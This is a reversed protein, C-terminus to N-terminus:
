RAPDHERFLRRLAKLVRRLRDPPESGAEVRVTRGRYTVRQRAGGALPPGVPEYNRELGRFRAARLLRKVRALRREGLRFRERADGRRATAAGSRSIKLSTEGDLVAQGAAYSVLTTAAGAGAPLVLVVACLVVAVGVVCRM